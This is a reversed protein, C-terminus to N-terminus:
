FKGIKNKIIEKTFNEKTIKIDKLHINQTDEYYIIAPKNERHLKGKHYYKKMNLIPFFHVNYKKDFENIIKIEYPIIKRIINLIFQAIILILNIMLFIYLTFFCVFLCYTKNFENYEFNFLVYIFSFLLSPILSKNLFKTHKKLFIKLYTTM